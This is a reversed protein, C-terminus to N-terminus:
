KYFQWECGRVGDPNIIKAVMVVRKDTLEVIESTLSYQPFNERFAKIRDNVLVYEKGKINTTPLDQKM